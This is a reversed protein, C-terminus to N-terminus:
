LKRKENTKCIALIILFTLPLYPSISILFYAFDTYFINFPQLLLNFITNNLSIIEENDFLLESLIFLIQWFHLNAFSLCFVNLIIYEVTMKNEKIFFVSAFILLVLYPILFSYEFIVSSDNCFKFVVFNFLYFFIIIAFLIGAGVFHKNLKIKNSNIQQFIM